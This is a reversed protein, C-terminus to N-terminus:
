EDRRYLDATWGESERGEVRSFGALTPRDSGLYGSAILLPSDLRPALLPLVRADINAVTVDAPPLPDALVDSLRVDLGVQNRRANLRAAEVAAPDDDLAIVPQWGLKLAALSLVGSGCGADLLGAPPLLLLLELALRTSAHAGTGFARGPDIAVAVAGTSPSAWPPGIWLPGILVPRHFSRWGEEWGPQVPATTTEGFTETLRAKGAADTYAVLALMEKSEIEEFGAPFLAIM